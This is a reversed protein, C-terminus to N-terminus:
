IGNYYKNLISAKFFYKKNNFLVYLQVRITIFQFTEQNPTMM